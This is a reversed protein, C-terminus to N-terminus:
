VDVFSVTVTSGEKADLTWRGEMDTMASKQGAKVVAGPLPSNDAADVVTGRYQASLQASCGMFLLILFSAIFHQRKNM